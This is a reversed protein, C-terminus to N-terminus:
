GQIVFEIYHEHSADLASEFANRETDSMSKRYEKIKDSLPVSGDLDFFLDEENMVILRGKAQELLQKVILRNPMTSKWGNSIVSYDLTAMATLDKHTMMDLGLRKATGNHSLHHAVKYFVTRNLLNETTLDGGTKFAKLGKKEWQIDHWSEWSGFEADGPFLAVRGSDEFEFALALSLNNTLSNMRLALYGSAFLWDHDIRRWAEKSYNTGSANYSKDFPLSESSSEDNSLRRLAHVLLEDDDIDKNHDFSDDDDGHETKVKDILRPPGLVFARVGELGPLGSILDGPSFYERAISPSIDEKAVRMGELAGVYTGSAASLSDAHLQAFENLAAAFQKRMSHLNSSFRSGEFQRGYSKSKVVRNLEAAAALLLKKKDGYKVKWDRVKRNADNECWALWVRDAKFKGDTFLERAAQFGLVHDKHEHTVVLADVHDEVDEKLTKVFNKITAASGSWVGCDILMKFSVSRGKMFKLVFCDGTGMKYMHVVLSDVKSTAM